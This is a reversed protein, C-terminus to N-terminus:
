PNCASSGAAKRELIDSATFPIAAGELVVTRDGGKIVPEIRITQAIVVHRSSPFAVSYLGPGDFPVLEPQRKGRLVLTRQDVEQTAVLWVFVVEPGFVGEHVPRHHASSLRCVVSSLRRVISSLRYVISSLNSAISNHIVSYSTHM